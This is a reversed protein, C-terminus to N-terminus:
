RRAGAGAAVADPASGLIRALKARALRLLRQAQRSSLQLHRGIEAVELQGFYQLEFATAQEPSEEALKTLARDIALAIAPDFPGAGIEVDDISVRKVPMAGGGHIAANRRRAADILVQRMVKVALRMLHDRSEVQALASAALKTYVEHVLATANLTAGRDRQVKRAARRLEEYAVSFLDEKLPDGGDPSM